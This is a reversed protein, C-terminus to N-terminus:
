PDLGSNVLGSEILARAILLDGPGDINISREWPMEFILPTSSMCCGTQRFFATEVLYIAGNRQYLLEYSQRGGSGLHEPSLPEGLGDDRLRYMERPHRMAEVKCASVLSESGSRRFLSYAADIDQARRLPSTPQAIFLASPIERGAQEYVELAQVVADSTKSGDQALAAPREVLFVSDRRRYRSLIDVDDTTLVIGTVAQAAEAARVTYEVLPVGGVLAKNKGPIGKSGARAPIIALLIPMSIPRERDVSM